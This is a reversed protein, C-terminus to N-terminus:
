FKNELGNRPPDQREVLMRQMVDALGNPRVFTKTRLDDIGLLFVREKVQMSEVTLCYAFTIEYNEGYSIRGIILPRHRSADEEIARRGLEHILDLRKYFYRVVKRKTIRSYSQCRSLDVDFTEGCILM